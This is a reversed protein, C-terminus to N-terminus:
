IAEKGGETAESLILLRTSLPMVHLPPATLPWMRSWGLASSVTDRALGQLRTGVGLDGSLPRLDEHPGPGPAQVLSLSRWSSHVIGAGLTPIM